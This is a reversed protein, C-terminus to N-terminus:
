GVSVRVGEMKIVYAQRHPLKSQLQQPVEIRLTSGTSHSPLTDGTELLSVKAGAPAHVGSLEIPAYPWRPFFGYVTDGKRTYFVDVRAYGPPSDVMQTINYAARFEKEEMSPVRGASWQRTRGEITETGYIAEGNPKLWAGMETLREEM